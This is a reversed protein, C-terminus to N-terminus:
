DILKAEQWQKEGVRSRNPDVGATAEEMPLKTSKAWKGKWKLSLGLMHPPSTKFDMWHKGEEEEKIWWYGRKRGEKMGENWDRNGFLMMMWEGTLGVM